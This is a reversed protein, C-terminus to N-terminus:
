QNVPSKPDLLLAMLDAMQATDLMGAHGFRPMTSCANFAKANYIKIWTYEITPQAAPAALDTVDRNRGYRYLSPGITGYSLEAKSLQHCNYCNGGNSATASSPDTWTLGRGSQALKEGQKWDGIYRGGAPWKVSARAEAMIQDEVAKSPAQDSSCAVQMKDQNLRDTKAIGQDRFSAKVIAQTQRDLDQPSAQQKTACGAAIAATAAAAILLPITHQKM